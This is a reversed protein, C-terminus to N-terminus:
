RLPDLPQVMYAQEYSDLHFSFEKKHASGRRAVKGLPKEDLHNPSFLANQLTPGYQTKYLHLYTKAFAHVAETNCVRKQPFQIQLRDQLSLFIDM